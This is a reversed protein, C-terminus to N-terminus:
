GCVRVDEAGCDIETGILHEITAERDAGPVVSAEITVPSAKQRPNTRLTKGHDILRVLGPM